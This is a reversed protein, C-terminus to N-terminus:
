GNMIVSPLGFTVKANEIRACISLFASKLVGEVRDYQFDVDLYIERAVVCGNTIESIEENERIECKKGNSQEIIPFIVSFTPSYMRFTTFAVSVSFQDENGYNRYLLVDDM